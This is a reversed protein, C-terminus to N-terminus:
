LCVRFNKIQKKEENQRKDLHTRAGLKFGKQFYNKHLFRYVERKESEIDTELHKDM